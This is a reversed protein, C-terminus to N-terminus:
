YSCRFLHFYIPNSVCWFCSWYRGLKGNKCIDTGLIPLLPFAPCWVQHDIHAGLPCIRYPSVVVKVDEVKRGCMGAVVKRVQDLQLGCQIARLFIFVFLCLFCSVNIFCILVLMVNVFYSCSIPLNTCWIKIPLISSYDNFFIFKLNLVEYSSPWSSRGM